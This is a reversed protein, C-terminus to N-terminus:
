LFLGGLLPVFWFSLSILKLFILGVRDCVFVVFLRNCLAPQCRLVHFNLHGKCRRSLHIDLSRPKTLRSAFFRATPPSSPSLHSPPNPSARKKAKVDSQAESEREDDKEDICLDMAIDSEM